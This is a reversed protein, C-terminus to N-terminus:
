LLGNYPDRHVLTCHRLPISPKESTTSRQASYQINFQYRFADTESGHSFPWANIFSVIARPRFCVLSRWSELYLVLRALQGHPSDTSGQGCCEAVVTLQKAKWLDYKPTYEDPLGNAWISMSSPFCMLEVAQNSDPSTRNELHDIKLTSFYAWGFYTKRPRGSQSTPLFVCLKSVNPM